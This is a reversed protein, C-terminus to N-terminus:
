SGSEIQKAEEAATRAIASGLSKPGDATLPLGTAVTSWTYAATVFDALDAAKSIWRPSSRMKTGM